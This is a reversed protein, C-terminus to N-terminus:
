DVGMKIAMGLAVVAWIRKLIIPQVRPMLLSGAWCGVIGGAAFLATLTVDLQGFSHFVLSSIIAGPIIVVLSTASAMHQSLGLVYIMGPVMIIAGGIGILGSAIGAIFGIGLISFIKM